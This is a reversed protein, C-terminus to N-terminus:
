PKPFIEAVDLGYYECIGVMEFAFHGDRMNCQIGEENFISNNKSFLKHFDGILYNEVFLTVEEGFWHWELSHESIFKYLAIAAM